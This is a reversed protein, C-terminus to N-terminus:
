KEMKWDAINRISIDFNVGVKVISKGDLTYPIMYGKDHIQKLADEASGNLKFEFVYIYKETKVVADARGNASRVEANIFQGLLRFVLYFVAQYHRETSEHLEYPISSFFIKLRQLFADTDGDELESVFHRIHFTNEEGSLSTYYPVLSNLFGYKVEDNPFGLKYIRFREDYDKITLYGSQYIVPIPDTNGARYSTFQSEDIEISELRRLDYNSKKLLEILFTPTGTAFWYSRFEMADIANLLSFPNYVGQMTHNFRYGDYMSKMRACLKEVSTNEKQAFGILEQQFNEQLEGPTIGCLNGYRADQSIDKLHNLDSFVSVQGFKTVGTLFVFKLYADTSKLVGYFAKLIARYEQQLPENHISQLLPKDYEDVLVVVPTGTTNYIKEILYSFREEPKRNNKEEGYEEEWKELHQNLIALLSDKNEYNRANLDIHLVPYVKWEKEKEEIDLGEFLERKGKFYAELTSVLLSKGFRRPRSLFYASGEQVMKYIYETKDIYVYGNTRIKEFSQIGIPFKRAM